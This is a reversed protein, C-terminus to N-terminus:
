KSGGYADMNTLIHSITESHAASTVTFNIFGPKKVEAKGVKDKLSSTKLGAEFIPLFEAAMEMPNRKFLKSSKLAINCSLDGHSPDAPVVITVPPFQVEPFSQALSQELLSQLQAKLSIFM